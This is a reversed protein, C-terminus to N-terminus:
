IQLRHECTSITIHNHHLAQKWVETYLVLRSDVNYLLAKSVLIFYEFAGGSQLVSKPLCVRDIHSRM